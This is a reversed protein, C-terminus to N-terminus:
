QSASMVFGGKGLCYHGWTSSSDNSSKTKITFIAILMLFIRFDAILLACAVSPLCFVWVQKALLEWITVECTVEIKCSISITDATCCSFLVIIDCKSWNVSCIASSKDAWFVVVLGLWAPPWPLSDLQVVHHSFAAPLPILGMRGPMACRM